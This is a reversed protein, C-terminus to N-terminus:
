PVAELSTNIVDEPYIKYDITTDSENTVRLYYLDGSQVHGRWIREGTEVGGDRNVAAGSGFNDVNFRNDPAWDRLQNGEFLDFNVLRGLNGDDPTFVMTFVTEVSGTNDVDGRSFTYWEEEGPGLSGDNIGVKMPEPVTPAKGPAFVLPKAVTKEGLEPRYVDGTYLYYDMYVDTGNRIQVLYLNNDIVWGSWYREGTLPNDDRYVVSGAGINDIQTNDGPSWYKVGGATFVDFTMNRIRNGDDPTTIMTLAMQEFDEKDFDTIYFSYWAEEGPALGSKNLGIELPRATQPSEGPDFIRETAVPVAGLLPNYIDDDYLWYDVEVDTGNEIALLYDNDHLVVGRWIREGTNYDGDRSVLMGAGFNTMQDAEGRRYFELESAAFLEFNVYHRRNGDDPTFFLSFDLEQLTTEETSFDPYHLSYWEVTKPALKGTTTGARLPIPNDPTQGQDPTEPPSATTPPEQEPQEQPPAEPEAVTAEPQGLDPPPASIDTASLQYDIPFDSENQVLVYYTKDSAGWGTWFLEGTEPNTDRQIVQGAGIHTMQSADGNSYFALQDEEFVRVSIFNIINGQNPTFVFTLSRQVDFIPGDAAEFKFWHQELPGLNDVYVTSGQITVAQAPTPGGGAALSAPAVVLVVAAVVLFLLVKFTGFKGKNQDIM